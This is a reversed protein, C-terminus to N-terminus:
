DQGGRRAHGERDGERAPARPRPRGKGLAAWGVRHVAAVPPLLPRQRRPVARVARRQWRRHPSGRPTPRARSTAPHGSTTSDVLAELQERTGGHRDRWETVDKGAPLEVVEVDAAIGALAEAARVAHERGEKDGDPIIVIHAGGLAESYEPHWKGKGAGGPNCTADLRWSVLTAVDKEGEVIYVTRGAKVAELVAPLRYLVRRVDGLSGCGGAM